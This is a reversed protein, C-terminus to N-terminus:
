RKQASPIQISLLDEVQVGMFKYSDNIGQNYFEPALEETIFELILAAALDGIKEGRENYFYNKIAAVMDDKKEKTLKINNTSKM